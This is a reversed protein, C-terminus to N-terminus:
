DGPVQPVRDRPYYPIVTHDLFGFKESSDSTLSNWVLAIGFSREPGSRYVCFTIDYGHTARLHIKQVIRYDTDLIEDPDPEAKKEQSVM